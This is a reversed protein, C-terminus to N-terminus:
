SQTLINATVLDQALFNHKKAYELLHTVAKYGSPFYGLKFTTIIEQNVSRKQMYELADKSQLLQQHCWNAVLNCLQWYKKKEETKRDIEGREQLLTTPLEINYREALFQAAEFPTTNEAKAIFTIVDGGAHCGFCYFIDKHPSVTFSASKESHFPCCGKW